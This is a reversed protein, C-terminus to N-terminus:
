RAHPPMAMGGAVAGKREAQEKAKEKAKERRAKAQYEAYLAALEKDSYGLARIQGDMFAKLRDARRKRDYIEEVKKRIGSFEPRPDDALDLHIIKYADRKGAQGPLDFVDNDARTVLEKRLSEPIERVDKRLVIESQLGLEKAAADLPGKGSIGALRKRVDAAHKPDVGKLVLYSAESSFEFFEKRNRDFFAKLEAESAPPFPLGFVYAKYASFLEADLKRDFEKRYAPDKDLGKEEAAKYFVTQYLIRQLRRERDMMGQHGAEGGLSDTTIIVSGVRAFVRISKGGVNEVVNEKPDYVVVNLKKKLREFERDMDKRLNQARLTPDLNKKAIQRAEAATYREDVLLFLDGVYTSVPGFIEGTKHTFVLDKSEDPIFSNSRTIFGIKGHTKKGSETGYKEMLADFGAGKAVAGRIEDKKGPDAPLLARLNVMDEFPNGETMKLIAEDFEKETVTVAPIIVRNLYLNGLKDQKFETMKRLVGIDSRDLGAEKAKPSFRRSLGLEIVKLRFEAFDKVGPLDLADERVSSLPVSPFDAPDPLAAPATSPVAAQGGGRGQPSENRCSALVAWAAFALAAAKAAAKSRIM